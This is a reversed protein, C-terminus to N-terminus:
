KDKLLLKLIPVLLLQNNDTQIVMCPVGAVTIRATRRSGEEYPSIMLGVPSSGIFSQLPLHVWSEESVATWPCGSDSTTVAVEAEDGDLPITLVTPGVDYSCAGNDSQHIAITQGGVTVFGGRPPGSNASVEIQVVGNGSGSAPRIRTWSLGTSTSWLCDDATNIQATIQGGQNGIEGMGPTLTVQCIAGGGQRIAYQQSEIQISGSRDSGHNAAITLQVSTTGTGQAPSIDLWDLEETATWPCDSRSPIIRLTRSGGDEGITDLHPSIAYSCGRASQSVSYEHGAIMVVGSRTDGYNIRADITITASGTDSSASIKLWSIDNQIEIPCGPHVATLAVTSTGGQSDFSTSGENISYGCPPLMEEMALNINLRPTTGFDGPCSSSIEPGKAKMVALLSDVSEEPMAQRMLALAGSVHPAAISAGELVVYSTDGDIGASRIEAGPAYIDQITENYNNFWAETDARTSAGVSVVSSICSPETIYGCYGSNGTPVVTAIGAAKLQDIISKLPHTDCFTSATESGLSFNVAGIQKDLRQSYVYELAALQDSQWSLYCPLNAGCYDSSWFESFVQIAMIDAEPAVGSALEDGDPTPNKGAAIAAIHTGHEGVAVASGAGSATEIQEPCTSRYSGGPDNTSFCAEAVTKGSFMEHSARIGDDIVAIYIGDGKYGTDWAKDAGILAISDLPTLDTIIPGQAAPFGPTDEIVQGVRPDDRLVELGEPSLTAAFAPLYTYVRKLHYSEPPLADIVSMAAAEISAAMYEAQDLNHGPEEATKNASPDVIEPRYSLYGPSLTVIVPLLSPQQLEKSPRFDISTPLPGAVAFAAPFLILLLVYCFTRLPFLDSLYNM